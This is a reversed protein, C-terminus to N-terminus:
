QVPGWVNLMLQTGSELDINRGNADLSGSSSASFASSLTVGPMNGVPVHNLQLVSASNASEGANRVVRTDDPIGAAAGGLPDTARGAIGGPTRGTGGTLGGGSAAGRGSSGATSVGGGGAMAGDGVGLNAMAGANASPSPAAMATLMSHVPVERGDHLVARDLSFALHATKDDDSKAHVETVHGALRTGKPLRTGDSLRADNMTKAFIQDGVRANKSDVKSTLQASIRSSEQAYLAAQGADSTQAQLAISCAALTFLALYNM